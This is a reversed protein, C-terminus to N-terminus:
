RPELVLVPITRTTQSAYDAYSPFTSVAEDWWQAREDDAVERATFRSIETRDQVVVDPHAKVNHYWSPNTEAAYVGDREIRIM